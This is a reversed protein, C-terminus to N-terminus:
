NPIARMGYKWDFFTMMPRHLIKTFNFVLSTHLYLYIFLNNGFTNVEWAACTGSLVASGPNHLLMALMNMLRNKGFLHKRKELYILKELYISKCYALNLLGFVIELIHPGM